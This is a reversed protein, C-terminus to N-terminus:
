EMQWFTAPDSAAKLLRRVLKPSPAEDSQELALLLQEPIGLASAFSTTDLQLLVRFAAVDRGNQFGSKLTREFDRPTLGLLFLEKNLRPKTM